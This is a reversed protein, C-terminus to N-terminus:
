KERVRLGAAPTDGILGSQPPVPNAEREVQIAHCLTRMAVGQLKAPANPLNGILAALERVDALLHELSSM